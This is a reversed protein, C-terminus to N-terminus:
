MPFRFFAKQALNCPTLCINSYCAPIEICQHMASLLVHCIQAEQKLQGKKEHTSLHSTKELLDVIM